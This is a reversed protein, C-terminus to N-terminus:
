GEYLKTYTPKNYLEHALHLGKTTYYAIILQHYYNQLYDLRIIILYEVALVAARIM